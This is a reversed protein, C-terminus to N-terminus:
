VGERVARALMMELAEYMVMQPATAASAGGEGCRGETRGCLLSSSCPSGTNAEASTPPLRRATSRMTAAHISSTTSAASATPRAVPSARPPPTLPPALARCSASAALATASVCVGECKREGVAELWVRWLAVVVRGAVVIVEALVEVRAEVEETLEVVAILALVEVERELVAEGMGVLMEEALEVEVKADVDVDMAVEVVM